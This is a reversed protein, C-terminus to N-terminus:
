KANVEPDSSHMGVSLERSSRLLERAMIAIRSRKQGGAGGMSM